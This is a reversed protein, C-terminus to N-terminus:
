KQWRIATIRSISLAAAIENYTNGAAKMLRASAQKDENNGWRKEHGLKSRYAQREKFRADSEEVNFRNYTWKAVSKAIHWVERGDLPDSFDANYVLARSNVHSIWANWGQLGGGKYERVHKYAWKRLSDFLTVNRGLGVEQARKRPVYKELGPLWEALEHLDYAGQPGYLTKWLPHLPNKTLLGSYGADAKLRERMFAEISCLFRLPADRMGLGDVLVPVRLGYVLHAHSNERNVATWTPPPLNASEWALAAGPRDVDFISWIRLYNPNAQIYPHTLAAKLPRIKTGLELDESCYPKRPWLKEDFLPLQSPPAVEIM